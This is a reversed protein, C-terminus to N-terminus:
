IKGYSRVRARQCIEVFEKYDPDQPRHVCHADFNHWTGWDELLQFNPRMKYEKCLDIFKPIERFNEKQIVFGARVPNNLQKIFKLNELLHEWKGGRRVIEYTEKTAADISVTFETRDIIREIIKINKEILLGNTAIVYHVLPNFSFLEIIKGYLRSAFPDGGGISVVVKKETGNIWELIKYAWSMKMNHSATDNDFIVEERCSPCSLNCSRDVTLNLSLYSKQHSPKDYFNCFQTACYTYKRDLISNQIKKSEDCAFIEDFSKFDEVHGVSYPLWGSCSCIYIKGFKDVTVNNWPNSCVNKFNTKDCPLNSILRKYEDGSQDVIPIM